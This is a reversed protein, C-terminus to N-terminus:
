QGPVCAPIVAHPDEARFSYKYETSKGCEVYEYGGPPIVYGPECTVHYKFYIGDATSRSHNSELNGYLPEDEIHLELCM